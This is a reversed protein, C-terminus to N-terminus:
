GCDQQHCHLKARTHWEKVLQRHNGEYPQDLFEAHAVRATHFMEFDGLSECWAAIFRQSDIYGLIIPWITREAVVGDEDTYLVRMKHRHRIAGRVRALDLGAPNAPRRNIYLTNDDLARRMDPPLVADIKALANRVAHALGDDTQRSVWQAGAVLAQLEDATFSLPPLLFGPRLIYGVGPEGDIDAGMGQLTAIDRRLTRLSIGVERALVAGAVTGRHRRLVQMLDFLRESRSM